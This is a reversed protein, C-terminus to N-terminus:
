FVGASLKGLSIILYSEHAWDHYRNQPVPTALNSAPGFGERPTLTM